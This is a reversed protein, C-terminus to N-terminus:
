FGTGCSTMSGTCSSQQWSGSRAWTGIRIKSGNYYPPLYSATYSSSAGPVTPNSNMVATCNGTQGGETGVCNMNALFAKNRWGHPVAIHCFMCPASDMADKGGGNHSSGFGSQTSVGPRHCYGCIQTPNAGTVASSGLKTTNLSWDGRLIFPYSSGHPGQPQATNPGTGVTWSSGQGHCDNCQMTQKGINAEFPPRINTNGTGMKREARDRGTPFVVPHWSRHNITQTTTGDITSGVPQCDGTGGACATGKNNTDNSYEGQDTGSLALGSTADTGANVSMFEAAVNTYKTMGNSFTSTTGRRSTSRIAAAYGIAPFSAPTDGNAYNSHCKFCLQYERTLYTTADDTGTGTSAGPDGKKVTFTDPNQPWTKLKLAVQGGTYAPQVGWGGRLVGSAVNSELGSGAIHTRRTADGLGNFKDNRRLRHPNHCDPCEAHRATTDGRGLNERPEQLDANTINHRERNAPDAQDDSRAPMGYTLDFLTKIPPVTGTAAALASPGAIDSTLARHCQFCTNEIASTTDLAINNGSGDKANSGQQYTAGLLTLSNSGGVGDRLLRRSGQATHTDHCNLCAGQWVKTGTPFDRLAAAADTYSEDAVTSDAHASTAWGSAVKNHCALCIIDNDKNFTAAPGANAQFRNLRLFKSKNRHPDHCTACQVQGAGNTGTRELPLLPKQGGGITRVGIVAGYVVPTNPITPGVDRQSTDMRVLEGDNIALTDDYTISIPHDNSLDKGIIRTYGTNAGYGAPMTTIGGDMTISTNTSPTGTNKPLVRVEGLAVTGDHCSLCLLSSGGPQDIYGNATADLSASTYRTYGTNTARNWLPKNFGPTSSTPAANHPTHCFVCVQTEASAKTSGSGNKSLNHLTARINSDGPAAVSIRIGALGCALLLLSLLALWIRKGPFTSNIM